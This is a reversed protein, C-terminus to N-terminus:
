LIVFVPSPCRVRSMRQIMKELDEQIDTEEQTVDKAQRVFQKHLELRKEIRRVLSDLRHRLDGIPDNGDGESDPLPLDLINQRWNALEDVVDSKALLEARLHKLSSTGLDLAELGRGAFLQSVESEKTQLWEAVEAECLLQQDWRFKWNNIQESLAKM